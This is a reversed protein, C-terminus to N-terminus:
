GRRVAALHAFPVLQVQATRGGEAGPERDSAAVELFDAGVRGLLGATRSGDVRTVLTPGGADALGRLASGLGLRATVPRGAEPVARCSLGRASTVAAFRVVWEHQPTGLLCWDTGLRSLRGELTGAGAVTLRVLDGASAHLRSALDVKAYEARSRDAVEADRELLHLGEAQQELDEFVGALLEDWGM